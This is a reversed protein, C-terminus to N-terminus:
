CQAASREKLIQSLRLILASRDAIALDNWRRVNDLARFSASLHDASKFFIAIKEASQDIQDTNIFLGSSGLVEHFIPIDRAIIQLGAHQAELVPLGLGEAHSTNILAHSQYLFQRVSEEERYGHVFVGPYAQLKLADEGWGIRGVIDLRAQPFHRERLVQLIKAASLLNKRPEITGLALLRLEQGDIASASKLSAHVRFINRFEPRYILVETKPHCFPQIERATTLSNVMVLQLKKLALRLLLGIYIRARLTLESARTLPFADHIYPIVRDSFLYTMLGPPFGPCLLISNPNQALLRPINVNQQWLMSLRSGAHIHKTPLPDLPELSFQELAIREFGTIHRHCHSFDVFITPDKSLPNIVDNDYRRKDFITM